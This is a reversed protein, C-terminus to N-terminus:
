PLNTEDLYGTAQRRFMRAYAGAALTLQSHSGSECIRGDQMVYIRDAGRVTSFRHSVLLVPRGGAAARIETFLEHEADPDLSATPEDLILLGASRFFGRALAVRQWQGSSIETGGYFEPGMVTEYGERLGAILEQAGARVAASEIASRDEMRAHDGLGINESATMLYRLFDQFIVAARPAEVTGQSPAYLGALIKVLTSKGSGNAGVLAVVEGPQIELSVGRLAEATASPYSFHVDVVRVSDTHVRAPPDPTARVSMSSFASLDQLFLACEYLLGISYAVSRMSQSLLVVAAAATGAGALKLAGTSLMLGLAVLTLAILSASAVAALGFLWSRRSLLKRLQDLRQTSLDSYRGRLFGTLDFARLEAAPGRGTLLDFLYGRRREQAAMGFSFTYLARSAAAAAWGVPLFAVVIGLALLPQIYVLAAGIGAAAILSSTLGLLGTALQYPRNMAGTRARQLRDHFNPDDYAALDANTSVDLIQDIAARSVLESILHQQEGQLSQFLMSLGVLLALGGAFPLASSLQPAGGLVTRLLEKLLLLQALVAVGGAAQLSLAVAFERGAAATVLQLASRAVGWLAM